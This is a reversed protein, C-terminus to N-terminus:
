RTDAEWSHSPTPAQRPHTHANRFASMPNGFREKFIRKAHSESAFGSTACIEAITLNTDKLRRMMVDLRALRLMEGVSRGLSRRFLLEATRRALGIAAAVDTVGIPRQANARIFTLAKALQPNERRRVLRSSERVSLGKIGYHRVRPKSGAMLADLEQAALFGGRRFDPEVSTLPTPCSECTLVDNDVSIFALDNPIRIRTASCVSMASRAVSDDSAFVATKQPLDRLWDSLNRFGPEPWVRCPKRLISLFMRLRHQSWYPVDARHIYAFSAFGASMLHEAAAATIAHNDASVFSTRQPRIDSPLQLVVTPVDGCARLFAEPMESVILGDCAAPRLNPRPEALTIDWSKDQRIYDFIGALKKRNSDENMALIVTVKKPKNAKVDVNYRIATKQALGKQAFECASTAYLRM